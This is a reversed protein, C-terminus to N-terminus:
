KIIDASASHDNNNYVCFAIGREDYFQKKGYKFHVYYGNLAKGEGEEEEIALTQYLSPNKLATKVAQDCAAEKKSCGFLLLATLAILTGTAGRLARRGSIASAPLRM